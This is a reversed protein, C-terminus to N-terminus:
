AGMIWSAGEIQQPRAAPLVSLTTSTSPASRISDTFHPRVPKGLVPRKGWTRPTRAQSPLRATRPPSARTALAQRPNALLLRKGWPHRTSPSTPHTHTHPRSLFSATCARARRCHGGGGKCHNSGHAGRPRLRRDWLCSARVWM